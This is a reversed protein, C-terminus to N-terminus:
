RDHVVSSCDDVVVDFCKLFSSLLSSPKVICHAKKVASQLVELKLAILKFLKLKVCLIKALKCFRISRDM